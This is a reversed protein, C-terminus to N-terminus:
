GQKARARTFAVSGVILALSMLSVFAGAQFSAPAYVLEVHKTAPQLPIERFMPPRLRIRVEKGDAFAHWGPWFTDAIELREPPPGLECVIRSPDGAFRTSLVEPEATPIYRTVMRVRPSAASDEYLVVGSGRWVESYREGPLPETDRAVVWKVAARSLVDAGVNDLLVMNGNAVPCFGGPNVQGALRDYIGPRLSDYGQMSDYGYAMAANPPLVAEPIRQLTWDGRHTVELVRWKGADQRLREVAATEPYVRERLALPLFARGWALLDAFILVASVAGVWPGLRPLFGTSAPAGACWRAVEDAGLAALVAVAFTYVCLIRAFGGAQGLGPVHYYVLRATVGGMAANLALVALGAYFVSQRSRVGVLGILALLLTLRGVYGCTESYPVGAAAWQGPTGLSDPSMLTRLMAPKLAREVRFRFGPEDLRVAGRASMRVLEVTPLLQLAALGVAVM